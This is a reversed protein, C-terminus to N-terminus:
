RRARARDPSFEIIHIIVDADISEDQMLCLVVEIGPSCLLDLCVTQPTAPLSGKSVVTPPGITDPLAITSIPPGTAPAIDLM